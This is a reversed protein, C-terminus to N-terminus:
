HILAQLGTWRHELVLSKCQNTLLQVLLGELHRGVQLKEMVQSRGMILLLTTVFYRTFLVKRAM